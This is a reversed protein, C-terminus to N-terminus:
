TKSATPIASGSRARSPPAASRARRRGKAKAGPGSAARRGAAGRRPPDRSRPTPGRTADPPVLLREDAKGAFADVLKGIELREVLSHEYSRLRAQARLAGVRSSSAGADSEVRTKTATPASCRTPRVLRGSAAAPPPSGRRRPPGSPFGSSRAAPWRGSRRARARPASRRGPRADTCFGREPGVDDDAGFRHLDLDSAIRIQLIEHHDVHSVAMRRTDTIEARDRVVRRDVAARDFVIAQDSDVGHDHVTGHDTAARDDCPPAMTFSSSTKPGPEIM